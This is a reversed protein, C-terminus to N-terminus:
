GTRGSSAPVVAATDEPPSLGGGGATGRRGEREQGQEGAAERWAEGTRLMAAMARALKHAVAVVALKRRGREGGAVRDFFARVAPSRRVAQWAAECLLKRVTAPGDGTIHGLRDKGASSDQCPVLGLYSGVQRTRRFRRVDDVYAVFAEATRVGVGPITRLLTVGPHADARRALEAEARRVKAALEGLEELLTDRVLAEADALPQERLWALGKGSWLTKGPRQAVVGASRLLARLQNKAAVRKAL